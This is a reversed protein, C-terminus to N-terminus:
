TAQSPDGQRLIVGQYPELRIIDAPSEPQNTHNSFVINWNVGEEKFSYEAISPSFNLIILLRTEQDARLYVLINRNPCPVSDWTGHQLVPNEKRFRLLSQYFRLLSDPETEQYEVNRTGYDPHLPLWPKATGFGAHRSADWQMPSRCGDRGTYIPWFKRGPPDLIERRSLHIDRMGIEEGYYLFPTGRLTLLLLAALKAQIDTDDMRYRTTSRPNDHNNLVYNPWRDPGLVNEWIQISQLFSRARLPQKLFDFNFAAHLAHEGMYAAAGEPSELFTEGIAYREPYADLLTRMEQLFPLMEPQSVDYLHKQRDFGRIGFKRPNDPLDKHKFYANFVDLRFGDVGRDLWFRMVELIARPVAPNRWNLDPQEKLFLHFYYEDTAPDYEWGDGGFVSQWNNPKKGGPLGERWIYWDRYPNDRSSRSKQFWSHQDSTHNFVGDLVVRIGKTHAERVLQDFDALTGFKPDIAEYDNIDYGFDKDPSPYIPSLWIADIGLNQLYDLKSTIGPLDGIGDHNSDYFSRPYIQYIVGDRWWLFEKGM